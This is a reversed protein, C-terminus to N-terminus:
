ERKHGLEDYAYGLDIERFNAVAFWEETNILTFLTQSPVIMEGSSVTLGAVRGAHAARVTTNELARRAIALADKRARVTAEAGEDTDIAREAAAEQERAQRLSTEADRQVTQAQDLQQTPM